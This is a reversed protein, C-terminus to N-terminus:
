RVPPQMRGKLREFLIDAIGIGSKQSVVGALNDDFMGQVIKQAHSPAPAGAAITNRMSQLMQRLFLAEFESCASQLSSLRGGDPAAAPAPLGSIPTM